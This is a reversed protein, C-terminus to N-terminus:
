ARKVDLKNLRKWDQLFDVYMNPILGFKAVNEM